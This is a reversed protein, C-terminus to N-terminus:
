RDRGGISPEDFVYLWHVIIGVPPGQELPDDLFLQVHQGLSRNLTRVLGCLRERIIGTLWENNRIVSPRGM